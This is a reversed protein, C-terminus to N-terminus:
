KLKEYYYLDHDMLDSHFIKILDGLIIDPRAYGSEFFDFGGGPGVRKSFSYVKDKQFAQFAGYREDQAVIEDLNTFTGVGVWYDAKGAKDLVTEFSVELWGGTTDNEWIYQAGADQYFQAAWNNGGPLFWVDGYMVGSFVAPKNPIKEVLSQYDQYRSSIAGFISDAMAEKHFLAGFFKLWEARGLASTELFDSNYIVPIGAEILKDLSSSEGGMDYAVVVDPQSAMVLEINIQGDSGLDVIHGDVVRNNIKESYIYSTGPFGVLTEDVGLMELYTLHTTSTVIIREPAEKLDYKKPFQAGPWPEYNILIGDQIDFKEAYVISGSVKSQAMDSNKVQCACLILLLPAIKNM